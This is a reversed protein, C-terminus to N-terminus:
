KGIGIRCSFSADHRRERAIEGADRAIAIRDVIGVVFRKGVVVVVHVAETVEEDFLIRQIRQGPLDHVSAMDLHCVTMVNPFVVVRGVVLAVSDGEGDFQTFDLRRREIDEIHRVFFVHRIHRRLEDVFPVDREFAGDVENLVRRIRDDFVDDHGFDVRQAFRTTLEFIACSGDVHEGFDVVGHEFGSQGALFVDEYRAVNGDDFAVGLEANGIVEDLLTDFADAVRRAFAVETFVIQPDDILVEFVAEQAITRGGVIGERALRNRRLGVDVCARHIVVGRTDDIADLEEVAFQGGVANTCVIGIDSTRLACAIAEDLQM